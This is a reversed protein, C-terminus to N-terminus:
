SNLRLVTRYSVSSKIAVPASLEVANLRFLVWRKHLDPSTPILITILMPTDNIPPTAMCCFAQRGTVFSSGGSALYSVLGAIDEPTGM